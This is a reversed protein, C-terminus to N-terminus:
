KANAFMISLNKESCMRSVKGCPLVTSRKEQIHMINLEILSKIGKLVQKRHTM